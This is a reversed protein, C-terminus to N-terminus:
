NRRIQVEVFALRHDSADSAIVGSGSSPLTQGWLFLYDLRARPLGTRNFTAAVDLNLGAFPDSFGSRYLTQLLPSDPVNHFTGGLLARGLQGGYDNRIHSEITNLIANLQARQNSEQQEVDEGALLLGLMTNYLTIVGEDPQIQVRQLGTQQDISPLLVGDSFGIPVRSLVALGQLGENTPYFRRDMGLRRALWLTQDVGFSTLRGAEAEQLLVVQAGSRQITIAIEELNYDYFENFAGHINYTGIRLDAVNLVPQIQPPRAAFTAYGAAIAIFALGLISQVASGGGWPIRRTSQVMPLVALFVAILIVGLGMGRFGRLLPPIISNLSDFPAAFNRVYAYEYTFFDAGVLLVFIFGAVIMWLGSFNREREAKPRAFWWWSLSLALQALVLLVAGISLTAAGPLGIRPIRLGVVVLIAILIMWLWGRTGSDFPAIFQRARNRVWPVLPLLTAVLVPAVFLTYDAGTRSAIANPLAMLALQLFLLAGMGIGGWLNMTGRDPDPQNSSGPSPQDKSPGRRISLLSLLIVLASLGLQITLYAPAWSPDLTNGVARLVQDAGLGLVFFIPLLSARQAILLAIMLLGAGVALQAGLVPSLPADVWTICLRGFVMLVSTLLLLWRNRGLFLALVPLALMLGLLTIETSVLAPDVAGRAGESISGAPLAAVVSASAIRSYLAGVLYRLAQIFFMGLLGAEIIRTTPPATLLGLARSFRSM